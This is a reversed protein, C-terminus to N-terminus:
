ATASADSFCRMKSADVALQPPPCWRAEIGRGCLWTVDQMQPCLVLDYNRSGALFSVDGEILPGLAATPLRGTIAVNVMGSTHLGAIATQPEYVAEGPGKVVPPEIGSLALPVVLDRAMVQKGLPIGLPVCVVNVRVATLDGEFADALQ